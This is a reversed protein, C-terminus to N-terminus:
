AIGEMTYAYPEREVPEFGSRAKLLVSLQLMRLLRLLTVVVRM